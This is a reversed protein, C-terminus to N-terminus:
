LLADGLDAFPDNPTASRRIKQLIKGDVRDFPWWTNAQVMAAIQAKTYNRQKPESAKRKNADM